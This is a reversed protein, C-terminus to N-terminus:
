RAGLVRCVRALRLRKVYSPYGAFVEDAGEGSLAVTVHRRTLRSLLLTPLAAQDGFPEDYAERFRDIEGIVDALQEILYADHLLVPGAPGATLSYEDSPVPIGANWICNPATRYM